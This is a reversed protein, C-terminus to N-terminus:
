TFKYVQKNNYQSDFLESLLDYAMKVIIAGFSKELKHVVANSSQASLESHQLREVDAVLIENLHEEWTQQSFPLKRM